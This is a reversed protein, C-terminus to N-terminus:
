RGRVPTRQASCAEYGVLGSADHDGGAAAGGPTPALESATSRACWIAPLNGSRCSCTSKHPWSTDCGADGQGSQQVGEAHGSLVDGAGSPRVRPGSSCGAPRSAPLDQNDQVVGTVRALHPWQEGASLAVHRDHGAPVREGPQHGSVIRDAQVQVRQWWAVRYAQQPAQDTLAHRGPAPVAAAATVPCWGPADPM